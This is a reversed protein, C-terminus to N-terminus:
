DNKEDILPYEKDISSLKTQLWKNYTEDDELIGYRKLTTRLSEVEGRLDEMLKWIDHPARSVSQSTITTYGESQLWKRIDIYMKVINNDDKTKDLFKEMATGM